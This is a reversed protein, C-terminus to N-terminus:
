TNRTQRTYKACTHKTYEARTHKTYKKNTRSTNRTNATHIGQMSQPNKKRITNAKHISKHITKNASWQNTM